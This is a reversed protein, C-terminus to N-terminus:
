TDNIPVGQMKISISFIVEEKLSLERLPVIRANEIKTYSEGISLLQM